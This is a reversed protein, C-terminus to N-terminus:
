SSHREAPDAATNTYAAGASAVPPLSALIASWKGGDYMSKVDQGIYVPVRQRFKLLEGEKNRQAETATHLHVRPYATSLSSAYSRIEAGLAPEFYPFTYVDLLRALADSVPLTASTDSVSSSM